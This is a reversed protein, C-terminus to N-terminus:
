HQRMLYEELVRVAESRVDEGMEPATHWEDEERRLKLVPAAENNLPHFVYDEGEFFVDYSTTSGDLAIQTKFIHEM